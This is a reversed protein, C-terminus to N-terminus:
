KVRVGLMHFVYEPGVDFALSRVPLAGLVDDTLATKFELSFDGHFRPDVKNVALELRVGSESTGVKAPGEQPANWRVDIAPGNLRPISPVLAYLRERTIVLLGLHRNADLGSVKGPISGSFRSSVHVREAVHLIGEPELNARMKAPLRGRSTFVSFISAMCTRYAAPRGRWPTQRGCAPSECCPACM